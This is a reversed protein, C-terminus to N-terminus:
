VTESGVDSDNQGVVFPLHQPRPAYALVGPLERLASNM